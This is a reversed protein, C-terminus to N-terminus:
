GGETVGPLHCRSCLLSPSPERPGKAPVPARDQRCTSLWGVFVQVPQERQASKLTEQEKQARKEWRRVKRKFLICSDELGSSRRYSSVKRPGKISGGHPEPEREEWGRASVLPWSREGGAELQGGLCEQSRVLSCGLCSAKGWGLLRLRSWAAGSVMIWLPVPVQSLTHSNDSTVSPVGACWLLSFLWPANVTYLNVSLNWSAYDRHPCPCPNAPGRAPPRRCLM